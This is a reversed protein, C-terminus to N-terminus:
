NKETGNYPLLHYKWNRAIESQKLKTNISMIEMFEATEDLKYYRMILGVNLDGTKAIQELHFSNNM